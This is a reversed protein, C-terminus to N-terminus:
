GETEMGGTYNEFATKANNIDGQTFYENFFNKIKEVDSKETDSLPRVMTIVGTQIKTNGIVKGLCYNEGSMSYVTTLYKGVFEIPQKTLNMGCELATVAAENGEKKLRVVKAVPNVKQAIGQANIPSIFTTVPFCSSLSLKFFGCTAKMIRLASVFDQGNMERAAILGTINEDTLEIYHRGFLHIPLFINMKKLASLAYTKYNHTKVTSSSTSESTRPRKYKSENLKNDSVLYGASMIDVSKRVAHNTSVSMTTYDIGSRGTIKENLAYSNFKALLSVVKKYMACYLNILSTLYMGLNNMHTETDNIYSLFALYLEKPKNNSKEFLALLNELYSTVYSFVGSLPTYLGAQNLAENKCIEVVIDHVLQCNDIIYAINTKNFKSITNCKMFFNSERIYEENKRWTGTKVILGALSIQNRTFVNYPVTDPNQVTEKRLQAYDDAGSFPTRYSIRNENAKDYDDAYKKARDTESGDYTLTETNYGADGITDTKPAVDKLADMKYLTGRHETARNIRDQINEDEDKKMQTMSKRSNYEYAKKKPKVERGFSPRPAKGNGFMIYIFLVLYNM